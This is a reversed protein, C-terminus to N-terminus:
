PLQVGKSVVYNRLTEIAWKQDNVQLRHFFKESSAAQRIAPGYGMIPKGNQYYRVFPLIAIDQINSLPIRAEQSFVPRQKKIIIANGDFIVHHVEKRLVNALGILLISILLFPVLVQFGFGDHSFMTFFPISFLLFFIGFGTLVATQGKNVPSKASLMQRGSIDTGTTIASGTPPTMRGMFSNPSDVKNNTSYTESEKSVPVQFIDRQTTKQPPQNTNVDGLLDDISIEKNQKAQLEELDALRIVNKCKKCEALEITTYIQSDPIESSCHPCTIPM